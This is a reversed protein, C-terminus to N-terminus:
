RAEGALRAYVTELRRLAAGWDLNAEAFRRGGEALRAWLARNDLLRLVGAAFAEPEDAVLLAEGVPAEISANARATAVVPRGAWMAEAVKALTGADTRMPAVAVRCRAYWPTLDDVAGTVHVGPLAALAQVEPTPNAGVIVFRAGPRNAIVKPWVERCFWTTAAVNRARDMAGAFLVTDREADDARIARLSEYEVYAPFVTVPLAGGTAATLARADRASRTLALDCARAYAVERARERRYAWEARWRAIPGRAAQREADRVVFNVDVCDLVRAAGVAYRAYRGMPTWVFQVVDVRHAMAAVHRAMAAHARRGWRWPRPDHLAHRLKARWAVAPAILRVSACWARMEDIRVTASEAGFVVLHVTHRRSLEAILHFLDQGGSHMVGPWVPYLSVFLFEM